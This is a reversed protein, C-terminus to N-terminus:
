KLFCNGNRSVGLFPEFLASYKGLWLDGTAQPRRQRAQYSKQLAVSAHLTVSAFINGNKGEREGGNSAVSRISISALSERPARATVERPPTARTARPPSTETISKENEPLNRTTADCKAPVNSAMINRKGSFNYRINIDIDHITNINSTIVDGKTNDNHTFIVRKAAVCCTADCKSTIYCASVDRIRAVNWLSM